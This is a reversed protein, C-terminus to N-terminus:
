DFSAFVRKFGRAHPGTEVRAGDSLHWKGVMYTNYGADSMLDALSAIRFNLYGEYGPKGKQDDRTPAGMVGLGALHHDMGSMLMARTPSCTMGAYFDTLLMGDKALADLNPTPIESGFAGLDAYGLDDALIYLINPRRAAAVQTSGAGPKQM